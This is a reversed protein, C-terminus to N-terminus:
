RRPVNTQKNSETSIEEYLSSMYSYMRAVDRHFTRMALSELGANSDNNLIRKQVIENNLDQNQAMRKASERDILYILTEKDTYWLAAIVALIDSLGLGSIEGMIIEINSLAINANKTMNNRKSHLKNLNNILDNSFSERSFLDPFLFASNAIAFDSNNEKKEIPYLLDNLEKQMEKDIIEEDAVTNAPSSPHKLVSLTECGFDLGRNNPIPIWNYKAQSHNNPLCSAVPYINQLSDYLSKITVRIINILNAFQIQESKSSKNGDVIQKYIAKSANDKSLAARVIYKGRESLLSDTRQASFRDIIVKEIYPRQLFVGDRLKTDDKRLAFPAAIRNKGPIVSLDARPDTMIPRIIHPRSIHIASIQNNKILDEYGALEAISSYNEIVHTQESLESEFIFKENPISNTNNFAEDIVNKFPLSFKRIDVTSLALLSSKIDQKSIVESLRRPSVERHNLIKLIPKNGCINNAIQTRKKIISNTEPGNKALEADYGPSYLDKGDFVPLGLLRMFASFRSEQPADGTSSDANVLSASVSKISTYNTADVYSRISEIQSIFGNYISEINADQYQEQEIGTDLSANSDKNSDM